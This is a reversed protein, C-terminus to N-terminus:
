WISFVIKSYHIGQYICTFIENSVVMLNNLLGFDPIPVTVGHMDWENALIPCGCPQGPPMQDCLQDGNDVLIKCFDYECSGLGNLCPVDLPFPELKTLDMKLVLDAPLDERILQHIDMSIEGPIPITDPSNGGLVVFPADEFGACNTPASRLVAKSNALAAVALIISIKTFGNMKTFYYGM